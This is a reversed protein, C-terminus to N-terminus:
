TPLCDRHHTLQKLVKAKTTLLNVSVSDVGKLSGIYNEITAVCSACTMGEIELYLTGPEAVELVAADYGVSGITEKLTELTVLNADYTIQARTTSLAVSAALVGPEQLLAHEIIGVCSACTMGSVAFAAELPMAAAAEPLPEASNHLIRAQYGLGQVAETLATDSAQRAAVWARRRTQSVLVSVVGEVAELAQQVAEECNGCTLGKVRLLTVELQAETARHLFSTEDIERGSGCDCPQCPQSERCPCDRRNWETLFSAPLGASALISTLSTDMRDAGVLIAGLNADAKFQRVTPTRKLLRLASDLDTATDLKLYVTHLGSGRMGDALQMLGQFQDLEVPQCRCHAPECRCDGGCLCPQDLAFAARDNLECHLEKGPCIALVFDIVAKRALGLALTNTPQDYLFSKVGNTNSLDVEVAEDFFDTPQLFAVWDGQRKWGVAAQRLHTLETAARVQTCSCTDGCGCSPGCLCSLLAHKRKKGM